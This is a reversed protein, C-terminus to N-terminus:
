PIGAASAVEHKAQQDLRRAERLIALIVLPLTALMALWAAIAWGALAPFRFRLQFPFYYLTRWEIPIGAFRAPQERDRAMEALNVARNWIAGQTYGLTRQMVELNAAIVTSSAQLIVAAIVIAWVARRPWDPLQRVLLLPVAFLCLLQVPLLVYRDGWAVGGGFFYYKAYFSLYMLLLIALCSLTVKLEKRLNARNWAVLVILVVLLPDYLLVSKDLSFLAGLFGKWFPYSFMFNEPAGAPRFQREMIGTYTSFLEGFRYYQYWRDFVLAAGIPPLFGTLFRKREKSSVLAYGAFASTELISTLRTLLALGCGVGAVLPWLM